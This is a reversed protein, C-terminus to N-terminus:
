AAKGQGADELWENWIAGSQALTMRIDDPTMAPDYCWAEVLDFARLLLYGAEQKSRGGHALRSLRPGLASGGFEDLIVKIAYFVDKPMTITETM